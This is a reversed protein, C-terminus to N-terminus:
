ARLIQDLPQIADAFVLNLYPLFSEAHSFKEVREQGASIHFDRVVARHKKSRGGGM